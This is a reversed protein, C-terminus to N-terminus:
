GVGGKPESFNLRLMIRHIPRRVQPDNEEGGERRKIPPAQTAGEMPLAKLAEGERERQSSPLSRNIGQGSLPM